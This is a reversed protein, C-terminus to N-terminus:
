ERSHEGPHRSQREATEMIVIWEHHVSPRFEGGGGGKKKMNRLSEDSVPQKGSVLKM